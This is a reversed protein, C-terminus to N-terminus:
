IELDFLVQYGVCKLNESHAKLPLSIILPKVPLVDLLSHRAMPAGFISSVHLFRVLIGIKLAQETRLLWLSDFNLYSIVALVGRLILIKGVDFRALVWCLDVRPAEFTNIGAIFITCEIVLLEKLM